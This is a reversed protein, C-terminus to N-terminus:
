RAMGILRHNQFSTILLAVNEWISISYVVIKRVMTMKCEWFPLPFFRKQKRLHSLPVVLRLAKWLSRMISDPIFILSHENTNEKTRKGCTNRILRYSM